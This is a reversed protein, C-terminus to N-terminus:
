GRNDGQPQQQPKEGPPTAVQGTPTRGGPGVGQSADIGGGSGLNGGGTAGSPGGGGGGPPQQPKPDPSPQAIQPQVGPPFPRGINEVPFPRVFSPDDPSGQQMHSVLEVTFQWDTVANSGLFTLIAEDGDPSFVGRIPVAPGPPAFPDSLDRSLLAGPKKNGQQGIPRGDATVANELGSNQADTGGVQRGPVGTGPGGVPILGWRGDERMPNPYLQRICRPEVELLEQLTTPYRSFRTQFVRIAEAYQLGRFILEAEKDRQIQHSWLPMVSAIWISLVTVAVTLVVLNYGRPGSPPASAAQGHVPRQSM